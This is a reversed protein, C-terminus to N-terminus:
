RIAPTRPHRLDIHVVQLNGREVDRLLGELVRAKDPMDGERGLSISVGDRTYVVIDDGDAHIESLRALGQLTLAGAFQMAALLRPETLAEGAVPQVDLAYTMLPVASSLDNTHFLPIGSADVAWFGDSTKLLAVPRRETLDVVVTNPLKRKIRIRAIIPDQKLVREAEALDLSFLSQGPVMGTRELIIEQTLRVGGQVELTRFEFLPSALLVMTGMLVVFLWLSIVFAKNAYAHSRRKSSLHM